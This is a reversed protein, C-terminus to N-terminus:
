ASRTWTRRWCSACRPSSSAPRSNRTAILSGLGDTALSDTLPAWAETLMARLPGEHGSPAHAEVMERLHANLDFM